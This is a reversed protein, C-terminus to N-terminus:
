NEAPQQVSVIALVDLPDRLPELRLGLQDRLADRFSPLSPDAAPRSRIAAGVPPLPADDPSAFLFFDFTGPTGTKDVVPVRAWRSAWDAVSSM